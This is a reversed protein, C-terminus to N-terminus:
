RSCCPTFQRFLDSPVRQFGMLQYYSKHAYIRKGRFNGNQHKIKWIVQMGMLTFSFPNEPFIGSPKKEGKNIRRKLSLKKWLNIKSFNKLMQSYGLHPQLVRLHSYLACLIKLYLEEYKDAQLSFNSMAKTIVKFRKSCSVHFLLSNLARYVTRM